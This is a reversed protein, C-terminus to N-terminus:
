ESESGGNHPLGSTNIHPLHHSPTRTHTNPSTLAPSVHSSTSLGPNQVHPVCPLNIIVSELTCQIGQLRSAIDAVGAELQGARTDSVGSELQGARTDSVGSELLGAKTDEVSLTRAEVESKVRVSPGEVQDECKKSHEESEGGLEEIRKSKKKDKIAAAADVQYLIQYVTKGQAPRIAQEDAVAGTLNAAETSTPLTSCGSALTEGEEEGVKVVTEYLTKGEHFKVVTDPVTKLKESESVRVREVTEPVTVKETLLSTETTREGLICESKVKGIDSELEEKCEREGVKVATEYVTKGEEFKWSTQPVTAIVAPEKDRTDTRVARTQGGEVQELELQVGGGKGSFDKGEDSQTSTKTFEKVEQQSLEVGGVEETGESVSGGEKCKVLTDPSYKVTESELVNTQQTERVPRSDSKIEDIVTRVEPILDTEPTSIIKETDGENHGIKVATEYVTKGEQFKVTTEPFTKVVEPEKLLSKATEQSPAEVKVLDSQAEETRESDYLVKEERVQVKLEYDEEDKPKVYKDETKEHVALEESHCEIDEERLGVSKDERDSKTEDCKLTIDLAIEECQTKQQQGTVAAGSATDARESECGIQELKVATEYLTKGQSFKVQTEQVSTVSVGDSDLADTHVPAQVEQRCGAEQGQQPHLTAHSPPLSAPTGSPSHEAGVRVAVVGVSGRSYTQLSKLVTDLAAFSSEITRLNSDIDTELSDLRRRNPTATPLTLPLSTPHLGAERASSGVSGDVLVDGNRQSCQMDSERRSECWTLIEQQQQQQQQQKQKEQEVQQQHRHRIKGKKPPPPPPPLPRTRGRGVQKMVVNEYNDLDSNLVVQAPQTTSVTLTARMTQEAEEHEEDDYRELKLKKRRQPPNLSRRCPKRPGESEQSAVDETSVVKSHRKPPAPQVVQVIAYVKTGRAPRPPCVEGNVLPLFKRERPKLHRPPRPPDCEVLQPSITRLGKKKPPIPPPLEKDEPTALSRLEKTGGAKLVKAYPPVSAQGQKNGTSEQGEEKVDQTSVSTTREVDKDESWTEGTGNLEEKMILVEERMTRVEDANTPVEAAPTTIDEAHTPVEVAPTTIDEVHTPVEVAPTTIDEVHTPVEVAPTTIDEVHTPVEVAPTTIDEAHTPVEAAPTTIDEVHTPVEAVPTTMDEVHTPDETMTLSDAAPTIQQPPTHTDPTHSHRLSMDAVLGQPHHQILLAAYVKHGRSPREPLDEQSPGEVKDEQLTDDHHSVQSPPQHAQYVKHGRRPPRGPGEDPFQEEGSGQSGWSRCSGAAAEQQPTDPPVEQQITDPPVEQQTADPSVEEQTTDPPVEEQIADPPVEEQTTDPPVEEQTTDPPVEEQTTDPPVEEQTTDPPVEEQTTDPPVEEQTTDPPVEEQTTDPPVEEQTTDPPVEQQTTLMHQRRILIDEYVKLGRRPKAPQAPSPLNEEQQQPDAPSPLTEEQQQPDAPSPLTEEQQQPDAPFPLTEQQQQPDHSSTVLLNDYLKNGRPPPRPSHLLQPIIYDEQEVGSVESEVLTLSSPVVEQDSDQRRPPTRSREHVDERSDDVDGDTTSPLASDGGRDQTARQDSTEPDLPVHQPHCSEQQQHSKPPPPTPPTPLPAAEPISRPRGTYALIPYFQEEHEEDMYTIDDYVKVWTRGVPGQRRSPKNPSEEAAGKKRSRNLLNRLQPPLSPTKPMTPLHPVQPLHPMAPLQPMSPLHPLRDRSIGRFSPRKDRTPSSSAARKRSFTKLQPKPSDPVPPARPLSGTRGARTFSPLLGVRLVGAGGRSWVQGALRSVSLCGEEQENEQM